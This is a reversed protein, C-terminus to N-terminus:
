SAWVHIIGAGALDTPAGAADFVYITLTNNLPSVQVHGFTAGECQGGAFTFNVTETESVSDSTTGVLADDFTTPYTALYVGTATKNLSTPDFSAGSGWVTRGDAHPTVAVVAATLTTTFKLLVSNKTRTLQAVDEHLRNDISAAMETAPNGVAIEDIFVGGYSDIDKALM